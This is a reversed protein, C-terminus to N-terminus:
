ILMVYNKEASLTWLMKWIGIKTNAQPFFFGSINYVFELLCQKFLKVEKKGFSHLHRLIFCADVSFSKLNFDLM